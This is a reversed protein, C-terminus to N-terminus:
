ALADFGLAVVGVKLCDSVVLAQVVSVSGAEEPRTQQFGSEHETTRWQRM